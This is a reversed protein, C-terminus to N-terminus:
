QSDALALVPTGYGVLQQDEVLFGGAIGAATATVPLLLEGVAVLGVLDGVEIRQGPSVQAQDRLPHRSLFRGCVTAMAAVKVANTAAVPAEAVAMPASQASPNRPRVLRVSFEASQLELSALDAKSMWEMIQQIKSIHM